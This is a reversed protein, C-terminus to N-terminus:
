KSFEVDGSVSNITVKQKPQGLKLTNETIYKEFYADGEIEGSVSDMLVELDSPEAYKFQIDGSVTDIKVRSSKLEAFEMDGSVTNLNFDDAKLQDVKMDGSVNDIKMSIVSVKKIDFDGSVNHLDLSKLTIDSLGTDASVTTLILNKYQKPVEIKVSFAETITIGKGNVSMWEQSSNENEYLSNFDIKVKMGEQSVIKKTNKPSTGKRLKSKLAVRLQDDKSEVISIDGFAVDISLDTADKFAFNEEFNYDEADEIDLVGKKNFYERAQNFDKKELSSSLISATVSGVLFMILGAIFVKKM